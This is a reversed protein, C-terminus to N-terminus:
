TPQQATREQLKKGKSYVGISAPAVFDLTLSGMYIKPNLDNMVTFQAKAGSSPLVTRVETKDSITKFAYIPGMPVYWVDAKHSIHTLHQEYFGTPGFDLSQPHSMFHYIGGKGYVEDFKANLAAVDPQVPGGARGNGKQVVQTYPADMWNDA